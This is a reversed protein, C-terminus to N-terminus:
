LKEPDELKSAGDKAKEFHNAWQATREVITNAYNRVSRPIRPGGRNANDVNMPGWNYAALAHVRNGRYKEELQKIYAIGLLINTRPDVLAPKGKKGTITHVLHKGTAPMIQMLGLAGAPSKAHSAFRSEVSIIAAIFFPDVQELASLEVIDKAVAGCDGITPRERAILGAIFKIQGKKDDIDSTELAGNELIFGELKTLLQVVGTVSEQQEGVVIGLTGALDSFFYHYSHRLLSDKGLVVALIILFIALIITPKLLIRTARLAVIFAPPHLSQANLHSFKSGLNVDIPNLYIGATTRKKTFQKEDRIPGHPTKDPPYPAFFTKM